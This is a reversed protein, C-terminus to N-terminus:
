LTRDAHIADGGGCLLVTLRIKTARSFEQSKSMHANQICTKLCLFIEYLM